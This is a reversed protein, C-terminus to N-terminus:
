TLLLKRPTSSAIFFSFTQLLRTKGILMIVRDAPLVKAVQRIASMAAVLPLPVGWWRTANCNVTLKKM